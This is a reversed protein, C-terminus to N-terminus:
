DLYLFSQPPRKSFRKELDLPHRYRKTSKIEIAYAVERNEFYEFYFDSSIGSYRRTRQWLKTPEDEHLAEIEFEGIVKQVPSSAYVIVTTIKPNKFLAKRFEFRKSGEFIKSAFEPKISLLVRM